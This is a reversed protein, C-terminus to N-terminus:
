NDSTPENIEALGEKHNNYVATEESSSLQKKDVLFSIIIQYLKEVTLETKLTGQFLAYYAIYVAFSQLIAQDVGESFVPTKLEFKFWISAILFLLYLIGFLVYFSQPTIIYLSLEILYSRASTTNWQRIPSYRLLMGRLFRSTWVTSLSVLCLGIFVATEVQIVEFRTLPLAIIMIPALIIPVTFIYGILIALTPAMVQMGTYIICAIMSIAKQIGGKPLEQSALCVLMPFLVLGFLMYSYQGEALSIFLYFLAATLSASVLFFIWLFEKKSLQVGRILKAILPIKMYYLRDPDTCIKILPRLLEIYKENDNSRELWPSEIVGGNSLLVLIYKPSDECDNPRYVKRFVERISTDSLKSIVSAITKDFAKLVVANEKCRLRWVFWFTLPILIAGSIISLTYQHILCYDVIAFLSFAAWPICLWLYYTNHTSHDIAVCTNGQENTWSRGLKM